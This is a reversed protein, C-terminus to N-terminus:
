VVSGVGEVYGYYALVDGDPGSEDECVTASSRIEVVRVLKLEFVKCSGGGGVRGRVCVLRGICVCVSRAM